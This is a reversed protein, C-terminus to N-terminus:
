FDARLPEFTQLNMQVIRSLRYVVSSGISVFYRITMDHQRIKVTLAVRVSSEKRRDSVFPSPEKNKTESRAGTPGLEHAGSFRLSTILLLYRSVYRVRTLHKLVM